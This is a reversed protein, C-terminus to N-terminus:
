SGNVHVMVSIGLASIEHSLVKPLLYTQKCSRWQRLFHNPQTMFLEKEVVFFIQFRVISDKRICNPQNPSSSTDSQGM